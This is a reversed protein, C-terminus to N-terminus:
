SVVGGAAGDGPAEAAGAAEAARGQAEIKEVLGALRRAQETIRLVWSAEVKLAETEVLELLQERTVRVDNALGRLRFRQPDRAERLLAASMLACARACHQVARATALAPAAIRVVADTGIEEGVVDILRGVGAAEAALDALPHGEALVKSLPALPRLVLPPTTSLHGCALPPVVWFASVAVLALCLALLCQGAPSLAISLILPTM